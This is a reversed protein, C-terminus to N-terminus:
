VFTIKRLLPVCRRRRSAQRLRSLPTTRPADVDRLSLVRQCGLFIRMALLQVMAHLRWKNTGFVELRNLLGSTTGPAIYRSRSVCLRSGKCGPRRVLVRARGRPLLEVLQAMHWTSVGTAETPIITMVLCDASPECPLWNCSRPCVIRAKLLPSTMLRCVKDFIINHPPSALLLLRIIAQLQNLVGHTTNKPGGDFDPDTEGLLFYCMDAAEFDGRERATKLIGRLVYAHRQRRPLKEMTWMTLLQDWAQALPHGYELALKVNGMNMAADGDDRRKCKLMLDDYEAREEATFVPECLNVIDRIIRSFYSTRVSIYTTRDIPSLMRGAGCYLRLSDLNYHNGDAATFPDVLIDWSIPDRGIRDFVERLPISSQRRDDMQLTLAATEVTEVTEVTGVTEVTEAATEVTTRKRKKYWSTIDM